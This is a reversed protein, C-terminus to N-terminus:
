MEVFFNMVKIMEFALVAMDIFASYQGWDSFAWEFIKLVGIRRPSLWIEFGCM